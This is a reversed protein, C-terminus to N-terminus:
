LIGTKSALAVLESLNKCNTKGLMNKRHNNITHISINLKEAIQKSSFGDCVCQLVNMERKSIRSENENPYFTRVLQQSNRLSGPAKEIINLIQKDKKFLSIDSLFDLSVLPTGDPLHKLYRSCHSVSQWKGSRARLRYNTTFTYIGIDDAAHDQIFSINMPFIAQNFIKFDEPHRNSTLFSPGTDSIHARTYGLFSNNGSIMLFRHHVYDILFLAEDPYFSDRDARHAFQSILEDADSVASDSLNRVRDLFDYYTHGPITKM